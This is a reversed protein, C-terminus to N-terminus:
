AYSLLAQLEEANLERIFACGIVWNGETQKTSHVVRATLPLLLRRSTSQAEIILLTEPELPRSLLMGVGSVSVDRIWAWYREFRKANLAYCSAAERFPYRQNSRREPGVSPPSSPASFPTAQEPM